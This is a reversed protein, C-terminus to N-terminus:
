LIDKIEKLKDYLAARSIGLLKAAKTKNGKTIKLAKIIAEKTVTSLSLGYGLDNDDDNHELSNIGLDTMQIMNSNCYIVAREIMNELERINGPWNYNTFFEMVENTVNDIQKGLEKNFKNIFHNVLFPIDDVHERLPKIALVLVKLRYYLDSRFKEDKTLKYLNKNTAALIRVNIKKTTISGVREVEKDQMVRLLKGQLPLPMDGIEDLFISGGDALEFKGAKGHRLAGTFAGGEYGFLEAEALEAPIAACNVKIFSRKCRDSANHIAQALLEKGTGSEGNILVTSSSTAAQLAQRKIDLIITSKGIISEITYKTGNLRFLDDNREQKNSFPVNIHDGHDNIYYKSAEIEAADQIILIVGKTEGAQVIPIGNVILSKDLDLHELRQPGAWVGDIIEKFSLNPLLKNINVGAQVNPFLRNLYASFLNIIGLEDTAVIGCPVQQFINSIEEYLFEIQDLVNNIANTQSIIGIPRGNLDVVPAQGIRAKRLWVISEMLNNFTKDDHFYVVDQLYYREINTNLNAGQLICDYLNSRTFIGILRGNDNVVPIAMLKTTRFTLLADQVTNDPKLSKATSIMIEKAEM